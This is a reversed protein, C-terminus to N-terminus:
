LHQTARGPGRYPLHFLFRVELKTMVSEENLQVIESLVISAYDKPTYIKAVCHLFCKVVSAFFHFNGTTLAACLDVACRILPCNPCDLNAGFQLVIHPLNSQISIPMACKLPLGAALVMIDAVLIVGRGLGCGHGCGRQMGQELVSRLTLVSSTVSSHESIDHRNVPQLIQETIHQRGQNDFDSLNEM